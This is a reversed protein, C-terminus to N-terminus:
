IECYQYAEAYNQFTAILAVKNGVKLCCVLLFGSYVSFEIWVSLEENYFGM